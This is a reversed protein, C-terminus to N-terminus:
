RVNGGSRSSNDAADPETASGEVVPAEGGPPLHLDMEVKLGPRLVFGRNEIEARILIQETAPEVEAAVFTVKGEFTAPRGALDLRLTVAAGTPDSSLASADVYGEARLVDLRILRLVNEGPEVWEGRSKYHEVVRGAIPATIAHRDLSLTALALEAEKLRATVAATEAERETRRLESTAKDVELQLRDIEAQPVSGAVARRSKEARALELETVALGKRALETEISKDAERRAVELELSARDRVLRAERDEIQALLEAEGVLRGEAAPVAALIGAEPAPIDIDESLRLYVTQVPITEPAGGAALHGSSIILAGTCARLFRAM